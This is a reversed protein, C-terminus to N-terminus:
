LSCSRRLTRKYDGGKQLQGGNRKKDNQGEKEPRGPGTTCIDSIFFLYKTNGQGGTADINDNASGKENNPKNPKSTTTPFPEERGDSRTMHGLRAVMKLGQQRLPPHLGAKKPARAFDKKPTSGPERLLRPSAKGPPPVRSGYSDPHLKGQRRFGAGM